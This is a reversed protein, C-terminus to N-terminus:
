WFDSMDEVIKPMRLPNKLFIQVKQFETLCLAVLGSVLNLGM